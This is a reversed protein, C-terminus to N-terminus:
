DPDISADGSGEFLGCVKAKVTSGSLGSDGGDSGYVTNVVWPKSQGAAFFEREAASNGTRKFTIYGDTAGPNGICQVNKDTITWQGAISDADYLRSGAAPAIPTTTQNYDLAM